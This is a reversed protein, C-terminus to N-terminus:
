KFSKSLYHSCLQLYCLHLCFCVVVHDRHGRKVYLHEIIQPSVNSIKTLVKGIIPRCISSWHDVITFGRGKHIPPVSPSVQWYSHCVSVLGTSAGRQLIVIALLMVSRRREEIAILVSCLCENVPAVLTERM